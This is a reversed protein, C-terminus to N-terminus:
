LGAFRQKDADRAACIGNGQEVCQDTKPPRRMDTMEIVLKAARVAIGIGLKDTLQGLLVTQREGDLLAVDCSESGITFKGEFIGCTAGSVLEERCDRLPGADFRQRQR